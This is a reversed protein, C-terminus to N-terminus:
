REGKAAKERQAQRKAHLEPNAKELETQLLALARWAVKATHSVGDTDVTGRDALHRTLCDAHDMSKGYAWHMPQGPNHQENAIRSCESVAALADPFYDLAGTAIPQSKRRAAESPAPASHAYGFIERAEAWNIGGIKPEFRYPIDSGDNELITVPVPPVKASWCEYRYLVVDGVKYM